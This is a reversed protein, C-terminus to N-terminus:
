YARFICLNYIHLLVLLVLATGELGSGSQRIEVRWRLDWLSSLGRKRSETRENRVSGSILIDDSQNIPIPIPIPIRIAHSPHPFLIHLYHYPFGKRPDSDPNPYDLYQHVAAGNRQASGPHQKTSRPSSKGYFKFYFRHM